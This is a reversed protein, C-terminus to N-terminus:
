ANAEEVARSLSTKRIKRRGAKDTLLLIRTARDLFESLLRM